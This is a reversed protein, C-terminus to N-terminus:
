SDGNGRLAARIDRIGNAVDKAFGVAFARFNRVLDGAICFGGFFILAYVCWQSLPPTFKWAILLGLAASGMGVATKQVKGTMKETSVNPLRAEMVRTTEAFDM